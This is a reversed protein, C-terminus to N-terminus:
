PRLGEAQAGRKRFPEAEGRAYTEFVDPRGALEDKRWPRNVFARVAAPNFAISSPLEPWGKGAGGPKAEGNLKKLVELCHVM